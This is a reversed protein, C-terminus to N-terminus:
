PTCYWVLPGKIDIELLAYLSNVKSLKDFAKLFDTTIQSVIMKQRLQESIYEVVPILVSMQSTNKKFACQVDSRLNKSDMISDFRAFVAKEFFKSIAPVLAIPRM